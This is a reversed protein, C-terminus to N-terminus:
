VEGPNDVDILQLSTGLESQRSGLEDATLRSLRGAREPRDALVAEPDRLVRVVADCGIRGLRVKSEAATAIPGTLVVPIGV